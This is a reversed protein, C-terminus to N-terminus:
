EVRDRHWYGAWRANKDSGLAAGILWRWQTGNAVRRNDERWACENAYIRHHMGFESRRLRSFYSEAQNTCAGDESKFERSHNVRMMPYSAHLIDWSRSEDAHVDTGSAVTQRIKPVGESERSVVWPVTRSLGRECVVVVVQREPYHQQRRDARRNEPRVRSGFYADDIEVEGELDDAGIAAGM